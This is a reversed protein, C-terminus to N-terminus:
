APRRRMVLADEGPGYYNTRRAIISFGETEYLALASENNARVELLVETCGDRRAADLLEVLLARGVGRRQARPSVAITQVDATPPVSLLGAYGLLGDDDEAVRYVRNSQALEGWFQAASWATGGFLASEIPMAASIDWWRMARTRVASQRVTPEPTPEPATM